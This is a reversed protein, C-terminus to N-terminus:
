ANKLSEVALNNIDIIKVNEILIAKDIYLMRLLIDRDKIALDFM